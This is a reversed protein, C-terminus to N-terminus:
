EMEPDCLQLHRGHDHRLSHDAFSLGLDTYAPFFGDEHSRLRLDLLRHDCGNPARTHRRNISIAAVVEIAAEHAFGFDVHAWTHDRERM